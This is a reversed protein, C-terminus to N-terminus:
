KLRGRVQEWLVLGLTIAAGLLAQVQAPTLRPWWRPPEPASPQPAPSWPDTGAGQGRVGIGCGGRLRRLAARLRAEGRGMERARRRRGGRRGQERM